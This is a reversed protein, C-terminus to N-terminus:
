FGTTKSSRIRLCITDDDGAAVESGEAGFMVTSVDISHSSLELASTIDDTGGNDYRACKVVDSDSQDHICASEVDSSDSIKVTLGIEASQRVVLTDGTEGGACVTGVVSTVTSFVNTTTSDTETLSTLTESIVKGFQDTGKIVVTSCTLTSDSSADNLDVTLKSPWAFTSPAGANAATSTPSHIADISTQFVVGDLGNSATGSPNYVMCIQRHKVDEELNRTGVKAIAVNSLCFVALASLVSILKRM